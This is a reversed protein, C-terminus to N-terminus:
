RKRRGKYLYEKQILLMYIFLVIIAMELLPFIVPPVSFYGLSEFVTIIEEFVFILIAYFLFKWPKIFFKKDNLRFLTLFLIILIVVLVLNYYPAVNGLCASLNAAM